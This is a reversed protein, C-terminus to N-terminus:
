TQSTNVQRGLGVYFLLLLGIVILGEVPRVVHFTVQPHITTWFGVEPVRILSWRAGIGSEPARVHMWGLGMSVAVLAALALVAFFAPSRWFRWRIPLAFGPQVSRVLLLGFVSGLLNIIVDNFDYYNTREPSLYFYQWAEDAAGLLTAWLVTEGYRKVLPFILTAVAAYQVFHVVEINIVILLKFSLITFVVTAALYSLVLKKLGRDGWLNKVLVYSYWLLGLLSIVLITTNYDDRTMHGDFVWAVVRGVQEHPLVVLLYFVIAIPVNWQPRNHLFSLLKQVM